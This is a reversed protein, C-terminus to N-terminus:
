VIWLLAARWPLAADDLTVTAAPAWDGMGWTNSVVRTGPRLARLRPRLALNLGPLLFLAVVTAAALDAAFLDGEAFTARDALGADAAHRRAAAVLEPNSEVGHARAGRRAAALVLAGDGAGLDVVHDAATVRALDLMAEILAPPTPLWMVDGGHHRIMRIATATPVGHGRLMAAVDQLHRHEAWREALRSARVRGIGAVELLRVPATEIVRLTDAGFHAVLRRAHAATIGPFFGSALFREIAPAGEPRHLQDDIPPEDPEPATV